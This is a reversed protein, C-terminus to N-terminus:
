DGNEITSIPSITSISTSAKNEKNLDEMKELREQLEKVQESTPSQNSTWLSYLSIVTPVIIALISIIIAHKSRKLSALTQLNIERETDKDVASTSYWSTQAAKIGAPTLEYLDEDINNSVEIFGDALLQSKLFEMRWDEVLPEQTKVVFSFTLKKIKPDQNLKLIQGFLYSHLISDLLKNNNTM